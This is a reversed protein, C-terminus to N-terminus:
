AAPPEDLGEWEIKGLETAVAKKASQLDPWRKLSIKQKGSKKDTYLLHGDEEYGVHARPSNLLTKVIV